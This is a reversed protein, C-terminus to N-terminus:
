QIQLYPFNPPGEPNVYTMSNSYNTPLKINNNTIPSSHTSFLQPVFTSSIDGTSPKVCEEKTAFIQNSQCQDHNDIQLCGRSGLYNGVLCWNTTPAQILSTSSDPMPALPSPAPAFRGVTPPIPVNQETQQDMQLQNAAPQVPSSSPSSGQQVIEDLSLGTPNNDLAGEGMGRDSAKILIGGLNKVTGGAIDVGLKLTDTTFDTAENLVNGTTYGFVAFIQNVLPSIMRMIAQLVNGAINLLNIGLIALVLLVLLVIILVSKSNGESSSGFISTATTPNAQVQVPSSKAVGSTASMVQGFFGSPNNSKPLSFSSGEEKKENSSVQM